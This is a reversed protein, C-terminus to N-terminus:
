LTDRFKGDGENVLKKFGHRKLNSDSLIHRTSKGVNVTTWVRRVISGCDPCTELAPDDMSRQVEFEQSCTPCGPQDDEKVYVYVPM